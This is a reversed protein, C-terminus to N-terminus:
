INAVNKTIFLEMISSKCLPYISHFLSCIRRGWVKASVNMHWGYVLLFIINTAKQEFRFLIWWHTDSNWWEEMMFLMWKSILPKTLTLLCGHTERGRWVWGHDIIRCHKLQWTVLHTRCLRPHVINQLHIFLPQSVYYVYDYLVDNMCVYVCVRMIVYRLIVIHLCKILRRFQDQLCIFWQHAIYIYHQHWWLKTSYKCLCVINITNYM